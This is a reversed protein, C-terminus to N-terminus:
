TIPKPPPPPAKPFHPLAPDLKAWNPASDTWIIAKPPFANRDDFMSVRVGCLQPAGSGKTFVHTGCAPCFARRTINGSDATSEFWTLTGETVIAKEPFFANTTGNGGGFKQCTRCWCTRAGLPEAAVSIKIAGCLCHGTHTTM